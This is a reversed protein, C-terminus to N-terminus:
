MLKSFSGQYAAATWRNLTARRFFGWRYGIRSQKAESAITARTTMALLACRSSAIEALALLAYRSSAIKALALLAYRSSAIKALALLAYCAYGPHAFRFGPIPRV